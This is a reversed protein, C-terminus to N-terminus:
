RTFLGPRQSILIAASLACVIPKHAALFTKMLYECTYVPQQILFVFLRLLRKDLQRTSSPLLKQVECDREPESTGVSKSLVPM